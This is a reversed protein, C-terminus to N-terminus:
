CHYQHWPQFSYFYAAEFCCQIKIATGYNDMEWYGPTDFVTIYM